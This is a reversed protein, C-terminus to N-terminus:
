RSWGWQLDFLPFLHWQTGFPYEGFVLKYGVMLQFRGSKTWILLGKHEFATGEKAGPLFLLDGDVLTDLGPILPRIVDVGANLGFGNHLVGLRPFVIPLDITTRGDLQGSRLALAIGGKITVLAASGFGGTAMIEHRSLIMHPIDGVDPDATIIGGFDIDALAQIGFGKKQLRRLLPTPYVVSHRSAVHWGMRVTHAAKVRVNPIQLFWIPHVSWELRSTAGM